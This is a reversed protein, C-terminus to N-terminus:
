KHYVTNSYKKLFTTPLINLKFSKSPVRLLNQYTKYIEEDTQTAFGELQLTYNTKPTYKHMGKFLNRINQTKNFFFTVFDEALQQDITSEPLPNKKNQGTIETITKYLKKTDANSTNVLNHIFDCKKHRLMTVFKNCQRKFAKWHQDESYKIWKRGRNKM